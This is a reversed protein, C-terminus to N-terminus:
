LVTHAHTASWTAPMLPVSHIKAAGLYRMFWQAILKSAQEIADRGELPHKANPIVALERRYAATLREFAAVNWERVAQDREGVILLSAATVDALAQGAVMALGDCSVAATINPREAAAKMVAAAGAGGGVYGIKFHEDAFKHEIWDTAVHLRDTMLGIDVRHKSTFEAAREEVPSYLDVLLTALGLDLLAESL